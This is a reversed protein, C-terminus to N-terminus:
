IHNRSVNINYVITITLLLNLNYQIPLNKKPFSVYKRTQNQNQNM